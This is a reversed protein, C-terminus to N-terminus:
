VPKKMGVGALPYMPKKRCNTTWVGVCASSCVFWVPPRNSIIPGGLCLLKPCIVNTLRQRNRARIKAFTHRRNRGADHSLGPSLSRLKQLHIKFGSNGAPFPILCFNLPTPSIVGAFAGRLQLFVGLCM